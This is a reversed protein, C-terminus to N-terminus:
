GRLTRTGAPLAEEIRRQLRGLDVGRTAFIGINDVAGVQGLLRPTAPGFFFVSRSAGSATSAIGVVHFREVRGRVVLELGDGVRAGTRAALATQVVVERPGRPASGKRLRFPTLQASIWGHGAPQVGFAVPRHDRVIAVPFSADPVARAVGPLA